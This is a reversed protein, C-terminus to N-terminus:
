EGLRLAHRELLHLSDHANLSASDARLDPKATGARAAGYQPWQPVGPGNPDGTRVFNVWYTQLYPQKGDVAPDLPLNSFIFSLESGHDVRTAGAAAVEMQFRWVPQGTMTHETATFESPCRFTLDDAIQMGTNGLLPDDPPQNGDELGYLSRAASAAAGFRTTV